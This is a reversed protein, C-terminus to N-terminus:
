SELFVEALQVCFCGVGQREEELITSSPNQEFGFPRFNEEKTVVM